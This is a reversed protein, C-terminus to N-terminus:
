SKSANKHESQAFKSFETNKNKNKKKSKRERLREVNYISQFRSKWQLIYIIKAHDLSNETLTDFPM